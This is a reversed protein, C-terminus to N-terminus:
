CMNIWKDEQINEIIEIIEDIWKENKLKGLVLETKLKLLLMKKSFWDTNEELFKINHILNKKYKFPFIRMMKQKMMIMKTVKLM